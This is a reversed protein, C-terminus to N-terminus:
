RRPCLLDVGLVSIRLYVARGVWKVNLWVAMVVRHCKARTTSIIWLQCELSAGAEPVSVKYLVDTSVQGVYSRFFSANRAKM